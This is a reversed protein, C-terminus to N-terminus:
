ISLAEQKDDEFFLILRRHKRRLFQNLCLQM